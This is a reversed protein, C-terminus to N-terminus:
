TSAVLISSEGRLSYIRWTSQSVKFYWLVTANMWGLNRTPETITRNKLKSEIHDAQLPKFQRAESCATQCFFFFTFISQKPDAVNQLLWIRCVWNARSGVSWRLLSHDIKWIYAAQGAPNVAFSTLSHVSAPPSFILQSVLLHLARPTIYIWWFSSPCNTSPASGPKDWMHKRKQHRASQINM